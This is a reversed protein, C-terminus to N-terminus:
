KYKEKPDYRLIAYLSIGVTFCINPLFVKDVHFGERIVGDVYVDAFQLLTFVGVLIMIRVAVNQSKHLSRVVYWSLLIGAFGPGIITALGFTIPNTLEVAAVMIQALSLKASRAAFFILVATSMASARMIREVVKPATWISLISLALKSVFGLIIVVHPLINFFREM